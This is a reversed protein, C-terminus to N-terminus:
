SMQPDGPPGRRVVEKASVSMGRPPDPKKEKRTKTKRVWFFIVLAFTDPQCKPPSSPLPPPHAPSGFWPPTLQHGMFSLRSLYEGSVLSVLKSKGSMLGRPSYILSFYKKIPTRLCFRGQFPSLCWMSIIIHLVVLSEPFTVFNWHRFSM